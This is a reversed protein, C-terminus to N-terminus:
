ILRSFRFASPPNVSEIRLLDERLEVFTMRQGTRPNVIEQGERAMVGVRGRIARGLSLSRRRAELGSRKRAARVARGANHESM